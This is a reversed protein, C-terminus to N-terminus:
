GSRSKRPVTVAMSLRTSGSVRVTVIRAAMGLSSRSSLGPMSSVTSKILFRERDSIMGSSASAREFLFRIVFVAM